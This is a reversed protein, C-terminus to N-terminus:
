FTVTNIFKFKFIIFSEIVMQKFRLSFLVVNVQSNEVTQVGNVSEFSSYNLPWWAVLGEPAAVECRYGVRILIFKEDSVESLETTLTARFSITYTGIQDFVFTPALTDSNSILAESPGSVQSWQLELIAEDPAGLLDVYGNATFSTDIDPVNVTEGPFVELYSDEFRCISQGITEFVKDVDSIDTVFFADSPKSAADQLLQVDAELGIGLTIIRSGKAKADNAATIVSGRGTQGDAVIVIIRDAGLRATEDFHNQAYTIGRGFDSVSGSLNHIGEVLLGQDNTLAVTPETTNFTFLAIRDYFPNTNQVFREAASRAAELKSGAGSGMSGSHDIAIAFDIPIPEEPCDVTVVLEDFVTFEGDSVTLRM